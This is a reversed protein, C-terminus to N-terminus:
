AAPKASQEVVVLFERLADKVFAPVDPSLLHESAACDSDLTIGAKYWLVETSHSLIRRIRLNDPRVRYLANQELAAACAYAARADSLCGAKRAVEAEVVM